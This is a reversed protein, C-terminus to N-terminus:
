RAPAQQQSLVLRTLVEFAEEVGQGTKASTFQWSCEWDRCAAELETETLSAQSTLDVKSALLFSPLAGSVEQVSERWGELKALTEPRTVDCVMLIGQAGQFFAEKLLERIGEQGMIDWIVLTVGEPEGGESLPVLLNKKSIRTGLTVTYDDQFENHVFRRILSTKGVAPEGVLCIKLKVRPEELLTM